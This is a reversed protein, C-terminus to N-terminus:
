GPLELPWDLAADLIPLGDVAAALEDEGVRWRGAALTDVRVRAVVLELERSIRLMSRREGPGPPTLVLAHAMAARATASGAVDVLGNRDFALGAVHRVGAALLANGHLTGDGEPHLTLLGAPTSLELHSFRGDPAM